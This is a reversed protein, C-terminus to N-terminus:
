LIEKWKKMLDAWEVDLADMRAENFERFLGKSDLKDAYSKLAKTQHGNTIDILYQEDLVCAYKNGMSGVSQSNLYRDDLFSHYEDDKKNISEVTRYVTSIVSDVLYAREITGFDDVSFTQKRDTVPDNIGIEGLMDIWKFLYYDSLASPKQMPVLVGNIDYMTRRRAYVDTNPHTLCNYSDYTQLKTIEPDTSINVIIPCEGVFFDKDVNLTDSIRDLMESDMKGNSIARSVTERSYGIM